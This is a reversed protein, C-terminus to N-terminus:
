GYKRAVLSPGFQLSLQPEFSLYDDVKEFLPGLAIVLGETAIAGAELYDIRPPRVSVLLRADRNVGKPGALASQLQLGLEAVATRRLGYREELLQTVGLVVLDRPMFERAVRPSPKDTCYPELVRLLAHLEDRSYGTVACVDAATLRKGM